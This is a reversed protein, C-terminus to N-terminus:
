LPATPTGLDVNIPGAHVGDICNEHGSVGAQCACPSTGTGNPCNTAASSGGTPCDRTLGSPNTSTCPMTARPGRDCVGTAPSSPSGAVPVGGSRCVPCPQARNSPLYVDSILAVNPRAAGTSLVLTCSAPSRFTNLACTSASPALPDPIPLPPGLNCGVDTCDPDTSSVAPATSTSAISCSPGSCSLAFRSLW